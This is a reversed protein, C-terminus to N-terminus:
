EGFTKEVKRGIFTTGKAAYTVRPARDYQDTVLQDWGVGTDLEGRVKINRTGVPLVLKKNFGGRLTCTWEKDEWKWQGTKQKVYEQYSVKFWINYGAEDKIWVFGHTYENCEMSTYDTTYGMTAHANNKLFKVHYAIPVAPNKETFEAKKQILKKLEEANPTTVASAAAEAGGGLAVMKFKTDKLVAKYKNQLNVDVTTKSKGKGESYDIAAKVESETHQHSTEIRLLFM